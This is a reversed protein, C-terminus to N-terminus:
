GTERRILELFDDGYRNSKTEGVGHIERFDEEHTPQDAAMEKLTRDHFIVYAPVGQEEALQQRKERLVEFLDEDVNEITEKSSSRTDTSSSKSTRKMPKVLHPSEEGQM